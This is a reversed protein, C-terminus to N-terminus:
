LYLSEDVYASPDDANLDPLQEKLEELASVIAPKDLYPHEPPNSAYYQKVRM